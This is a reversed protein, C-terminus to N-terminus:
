VTDVQVNFDGADEVPVQGIRHVTLRGVGDAAPDFGGPLDLPFAEGREAQVTVGVHLSAM